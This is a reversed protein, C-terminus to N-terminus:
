IISNLYYNIETDIEILSNIIEERNNDDIYIIIKIKEKSFLLKEFGNIDDYYNIFIIDNDINDMYQNFLNNDYEIGEKISNAIDHFSQENKMLEINYDFEGIIIDNLLISIHILPYNIDYEFSYHNIRYEPYYQMIKKINENITLFNTSDIIYLAFNLEDLNNIDSIIESILERIDSNLNKLNILYNVTEEKNNKCYTYVSRPFENRLVICNEIIDKFDEFNNIYSFQMLKRVPPIVIIGDNDNSKGMSYFFGSEKLWNPFIEIPIEM